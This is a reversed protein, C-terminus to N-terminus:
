LAFKVLLDIDGPINVQYPFIYVSHVTGGHQGPMTLVPHADYRVDFLNITYDEGATTLWYPIYPHWTLDRIAQYHAYRARWAKTKQDTILSLSSYVIPKGSKRPDLVTVGKDAGAVALLQYNPDLHWQLALNANHSVKKGILAAYCYPM